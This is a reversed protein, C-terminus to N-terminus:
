RSRRPRSWRAGTGSPEGILVGTMALTLLSGQPSLVQKVSFSLLARLPRAAAAVILGTLHDFGFVLPLMVNLVGFMAFGYMAAALMRREMIFNDFVLDMTSIV